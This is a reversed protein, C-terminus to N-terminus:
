LKVGKKIAEREIQRDSNIHFVVDIKQLGIKGQLKVLFANKKDYINDTAVPDLYLDIDGGRRMDDVRSGFLIVVGDGFVEFFTEKIASIEDETLRM